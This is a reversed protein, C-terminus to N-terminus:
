FRDPSLVQDLGEGLMKGNLLKTVMQGTLPGLSIGRTDHGGATIVNPWDKLRGIVPLGDAMCPRLGRWVQDPQVGALGPLYQDAALHVARVRRRKLSEDLGALEMMGTVRLRNGMPNICIHAEDLLLPKQTQMPSDTFTLGIGKGGEMPLRRGLWATMRGLWAGCALVVQDARFLGKTTAAGVVRRGSTNFGYVEAGTVIDAGRERAREALWTTFKAPDLSMDDPFDIGGKVRPGALPEMERAQATSLIQTEFGHEAVLAAARTAQALRKTEIFLYLMGPQHFLYEAGGLDALEQHATLGLHNLGAFLAVAKQYHKENVHRVFRWLWALYNPDPRLRLIFAGHPKVAHRLGEGIIGPAPIPSFFSPVVMGANGGSAGSAIEGKELLTVKGGLAAAHYAASLGIVGGGIILVESQQAM